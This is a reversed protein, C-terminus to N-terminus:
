ELAGVFSAQRATDPHPATRSQPQPSLPRACLVQLVFLLLLFHVLWSLLM